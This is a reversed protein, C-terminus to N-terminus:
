WELQVEGRRLADLKGRQQRTHDSEPAAYADLLVHVHCPNFRGYWVGGPYVIVNGAYKHGGTHSILLVRVPSLATPPPSADVHGHQALEEHRQLAEARERLEREVEEAILPGAVGCRKDRQRHACVLLSVGPLREYPFEVDVGGGDDAADKHRLEADVDVRGHADRFRLRGRDEVFVARILQPLATRSVAPFLLLDPFLYLDATDERREDRERKRRARQEEDMSQADEEEEEAREERTKEAAASLRVPYGISREADDLLQSALRVYSGATDTVENPWRTASLGQAVCLHRRHPKVSGAMSGQDIKLYSPLSPHVACPHLCGTCEDVAKEDADVSSPLPQQPATLKRSLQRVFDMVRSNSSGTIYRVHLTRRHLVARFHATHLLPPRRAVATVAGRSWM